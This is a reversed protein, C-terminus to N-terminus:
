DGNFGMLDGNFGMLDGNFGMLDGIFGMLDGVFIFGFISVHFFSVSQGVGHEIWPLL